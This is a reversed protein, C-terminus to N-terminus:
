FKSLLRYTGSGLEILVRGNEKGIVKIEKNEAIPKGQERISKVEKAPIYVQAKANVPITIEWEFTDKKRKWSSAIIGHVSKHSADVHELGNILEPKMVITQFGNAESKIGALSEYYWVLLDGLMMVHNQSNMRPHATNGNWLEWITTAGNELMYGWSPYTTNTALKYALDSRGMDTLTRMIWQTGVLGTSLHGNNEKEIIEVIRDALKGKEGEEVLGFYLALLNETLTNKGYYGAVNYFRTNFDRKMKAARKEFEVRDQGNGTHDSFRAMMQLLHYYYATSILPNPHKVDASKGRGEEITAPPACWDGYSDKTIIGQDDMYLTQMYQMWKKMAPYHEELVRVDGTQKYLMDAIILYTGPWTMNDSYYRWFAPAVDPIAGDEKQSLRIDELWKSYFNANDFLFNEGYASGPRDGLWAQRENRQPCDVPISKYNSAIGWWANTHIQNLLTNSSTFSGVTEMEDYVLRGIFKDVAAEGPYGEVEVYRFGHYTFRPEWEEEAGGKLVYVDTAKAARLNDRFLTGDENLSEAFRLTVKTGSEGQVRMKVWGSFNQGYDIIYKGDKPTISVPKLDQMVKMNSNIQAEYNGGPEQVYTAKMWAGDDYGVTAWDELEKRADYIEGDYENNSLVPGDTTGKWSDDAHIIQRSGDTYTIRIQMQMKPFGFNKVKYPKEQRIAYYRGNGLVVGLAHKNGNLLETVDFVNYKVNKTYDTLGPALVQDGVKNGDIYLEYLGLGMIYATAEQVEKTISIEKRFYRASLYGAEEDDSGFYGDFGIWRRNWDKYYLLGVRWSAPASWESEGKNTYVKVKWFVKTDSKLAKGDYFVAISNDSETKGSDWLDGINQALKEPSSAVLIHYASQFVNREDAQIQWSLRPNTQDIGLPNTLLECRLVDVSPQAFATLSLCLWIMLGTIKVMGKM